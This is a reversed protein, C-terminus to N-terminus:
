NKAFIPILTIECYNIYIPILIDWVCQSIKYGKESKTLTYQAPFNAVISKQLIMSSIHKLYIEGQEKDNFFVIPNGDVELIYHKVASNQGIWNLVMLSTYPVYDVDWTDNQLKEIDLEEADEEDEEDEEDSSDPLSNCIFQNLMYQNYKYYDSKTIRPIRVKIIKNRHTTAEITNNQLLKFARDKDNIMRFYGAYYLIDHPAAHTTFQGSTSTLEEGYQLNYNSILQDFFQHISNYRKIDDIDTYEIDRSIFKRRWVLNIQNTFLLVNNSTSQLTNFVEDITHEKTENDVHWLNTVDGEADSDDNDISNKATVNNGLRRPTDDRDSFDYQVSKDSDFMDGIAKHLSRISKIIIFDSCSKAFEVLEVLTRFKLILHWVVHGTHKSTDANNDHTIDATNSEFTNSDNSISNVIITSCNFKLINALMKREIIKFVDTFNASFIPISFDIYHADNESIQTLINTIKDLEGNTTDDSTNFFINM